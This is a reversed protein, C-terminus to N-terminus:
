STQNRFCLKEAKRIAADNNSFSNTHLYIRAYFTMTKVRRVFKKRLRTSSLSTERSFPTLVHGINQQAPYWFTGLVASFGSFHHPHPQQRSSCLVEAKNFWRSKWLVSVPCKWSWFSALVHDINQQAGLTFISCETKLISISKFATKSLSLINRNQHFFSTRKNESRTLPSTIPSVTTLQHNCPTKWAQDSSTTASQPSIPSYAHRTRYKTPESDHLHDTFLLSLSISLTIFLYYIRSFFSRRNPQKQWENWYVISEVFDSLHAQQPLRAEALLRRGSM